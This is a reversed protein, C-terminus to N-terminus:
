RKQTLRNLITAALALLLACASVTAILCPVFHESLAAPTYGAHDHSFHHIVAVFVGTVFGLVAAM